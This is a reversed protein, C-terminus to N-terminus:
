EASRASFECGCYDQRYLDYERSIDLSKKFGNKKKFDTHLYKIQYIGSYHAGIENIRISDKHPSITLTTAFYDFKLHQAKEATKSLRLEYCRSCREGREVDNELGFSCNAFDLPSYREYIVNIKKDTDYESMFRSLEDKRRNHESEPYINPNYFYLTTDFYDSVADSAYSSCPACCTHLLLKPRKGTRKVAELEETFKKFHDM